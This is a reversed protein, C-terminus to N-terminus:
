PKVIKTRRWLLCMISRYIKWAFDSATALQKKDGSTNDKDEKGLV